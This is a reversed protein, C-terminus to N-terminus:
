RVKKRGSPKATTATKAGARALAREIKEVTAVDPVHEGRELRRVTEPRVRALRALEGQTLGLALRDRILDRALSVAIARRAPLNGQADAEPLAPLEGAKALLREYEARPITVHDGSTTATKGAM